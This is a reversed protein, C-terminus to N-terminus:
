VERGDFSNRVHNHFYAGASGGGTLGDFIDQPVDDYEWTAGNNFEVALKSEEPDYGVARIMTSAVPTMQM